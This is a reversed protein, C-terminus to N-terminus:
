KLFYINGDINSIKKARKADIKKRINWSFSADFFDNKWALFFPTQIM